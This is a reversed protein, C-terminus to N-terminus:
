VNLKKRLLFKTQKGLRYKRVIIFGKKEYFKIADINKTEVDLEFENLNLEKFKKEAENLLMTGVGKNRFQDKVGIYVLQPFKSVNLKFSTLKKVFILFLKYVVFNFFINKLKYFYPLLGNNFLKSPNTTILVFGATENDNRVVYIYGLNKELVNLYFFKLVNLGLFTLDCIEEPLTELHLEAIEIFDQQTAEYTIM